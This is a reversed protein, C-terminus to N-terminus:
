PEFQISVTESDDVARFSLQTPPIIGTRPVNYLCRLITARKELKEIESKGYEKDPEFDIAYKEFFQPIDSSPQKFYKTFNRKHEVDGDFIVITYENTDKNFFLRFTKGVFDSNNSGLIKYLLSMLCDEDM